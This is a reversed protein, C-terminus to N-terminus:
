REKRKRNVNNGPNVLDDKFIEAVHANTVSRLKRVKEKHEDKKDARKMTPGSQRACPKLGVKHLEQLLGDDHEPVQLEIFKFCESGGPQM